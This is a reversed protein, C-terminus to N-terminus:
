HQVTVLGSYSQTGNVTLVVAQDGDPTSAPITLDVQYLECFGNALGAFQVTAPIGGVTATPPASLHNAVTTLTGPAIAPTTLGFGTGYLVITEGPKAPTTPPSNGPFLGVSGVDSTPNAHQAVLYKTNQPSALPWFFFFPAVSQLTINFAGSQQGGVAVVVPIGSGTAAIAPTVINLQGPSAYAIYAPTGNVTVSAGGLTTPANGNVFASGWDTSGTALNSGFISMYASPAGTTSAFTAGDVIARISPAPPPSPHYIQVNHSVGGQGAVSARAGGFCYLVNGVTAEGPTSTALPMSALTTWRNQQLNFSEVDNASGGSRVGGAFYLQGSISASCGNSKSTSDPTLTAWTNTSLSYGENDGTVGSDALGGAAVITSGLLGTAPLSKALLLPAERTWSDTAPNYSEVTNLRGGNNFGGIVYIIGANVVAKISDRPTPMPAKTSWTNTTPDYAEVVNLQSGNLKGGIVFLINDVVAGAPVFRPTPMPAGVTWTDTAPNYIQNVSTDGLRVAGGVVYVIGDIVGTAPGQVDTPMDAGITWSNPGQAYVPIQAAAVAFLTFIATRAWIPGKGNM